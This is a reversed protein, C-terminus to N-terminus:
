KAARRRILSSKSLMERRIQADVHARDDPFKTFESPQWASLQSFAPAPLQYQLRIVEPKAHM